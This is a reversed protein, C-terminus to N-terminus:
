LFNWGRRRWWWRRWHHNRYWCRLVHVSSM